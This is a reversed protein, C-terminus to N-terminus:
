DIQIDLPEPKIRDEKKIRLLRGLAWLDGSSMRNASDIFTRAVNSGEGAADFVLPHIQANNGDTLHVSLNLFLRKIPKKDSAEAFQNVAELTVESLAEMEMLRPHNIRLLHKGLRVSFLDRSLSLPTRWLMHEMQALGFVMGFPPEPPNALFWAVHESRAFPFWGEACIVSKSYRQMFPKSRIANTERSIFPSEPRAMTYQDRFTDGPTWRVLNAQGAAIHQGSLACVEDSQSTQGDGLPLQAVHCALQPLYNFSPM